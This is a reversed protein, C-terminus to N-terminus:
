HPVPIIYVRIGNFLFSRWAPPEGPEGPEGMVRTRREPTFAFLPDPRTSPQREVRVYDYAQLKLTLIRNQKAEFLTAAPLSVTQHPGRQVTVCAAQPRLTLGGALLLASRLDAGTKLEYLGPRLVDGEVAVTMVTVSSPATKEPAAWVETAETAMALLAVIIILKAM